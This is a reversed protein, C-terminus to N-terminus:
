KCDHRVRRRQATKKKDEENKLGKLKIQKKLILDVSALRNIINKFSFKSQSNKKDCEDWFALVENKLCGRELKSSSVRPSYIGM